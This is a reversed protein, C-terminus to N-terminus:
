HKPYTKPTGFAPFSDLNSSMPVDGPDGSNRINLNTIEVANVTDVLIATGAGNSMDIFHGQGDIIVGDTSRVTIAVKQNFDASADFYFNSCFIYTGPADIYYPLKDIVISKEGQRERSRCKSSKEVMISKSSVTSKSALEFKPLSSDLVPKCIMNPM